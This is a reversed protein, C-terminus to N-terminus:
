KNISLGPVLVAQVPAKWIQSHHLDERPITFEYIPFRLKGLNRVTGPKGVLHRLLDTHTLDDNGLCLLCVSQFALSDGAGGGASLM